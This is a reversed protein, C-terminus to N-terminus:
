LAKKAEREDEIEKAIANIQEILKEAEREKWKLGDSVFRAKVALMAAGPNLPVGDVYIALRKEIKM